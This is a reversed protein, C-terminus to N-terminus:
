PVRIDDIYGVKRGDQELVILYLCLDSRGEEATWLPFEVLWREEHPFPRFVDIEAVGEDPLPVVTRGYERLARALEERTTRGPYYNLLELRSAAIHRVIERAIDVIPDQNM